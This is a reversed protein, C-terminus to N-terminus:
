TLQSARRQHLDRPMPTSTSPAPPDGDSALVGFAAAVSFVEDEHPCTGAWFRTGQLGVHERANDPVRQGLNIDCGCALLDAQGRSWRDEAVCVCISNQRGEGRRQRRAPAAV